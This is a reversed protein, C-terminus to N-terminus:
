LKSLNMDMLYCADTLLAWGKWDQHPWIVLEEEGLPVHVSPVPLRETRLTLLLLHENKRSEKRKWWSTIWLFKLVEIIPLNLTSIAQIRWEISLCFGGPFCGEINRLWHFKFNLQSSLWCWDLLSLTELHRLPKTTWNSLRTWSKAVGHVAVCWAETDKVMEQLKSLSIDM